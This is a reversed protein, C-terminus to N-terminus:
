TEEEGKPGFIIKLVGSDVGKAQTRVTPQSPLNGTVNYVLRLM